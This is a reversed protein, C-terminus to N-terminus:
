RVHIATCRSRAMCTQSDSESVPVSTHCIPRTLGMAGALATDQAAALKDGDSEGAMWESDATETSVPEGNARGKVEEAPDAGVTIAVTADGPLSHAISDPSERGKLGM